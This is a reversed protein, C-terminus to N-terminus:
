FRKKGLLRELISQKVLKRNSSVYGTDPNIRKKISEIMESSPTKNEDPDLSNFWNDFNWTQNGDNDVFVEIVGENGTFSYRGPPLNDLDFEGLNKSM